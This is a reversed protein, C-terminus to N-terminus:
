QESITVIASRQDIAGASDTVTVVVVYTGAAGWSHTQQFYTGLTGVPIGDDTAGDGWDFQVSVPLVAQQNIYVFWATEQGVGAAQNGLPVSILIDREIIEVDSSVQGSSGEDDSVSITVSYTGVVNYHTIVLASNESTPTFYDYGISLGWDFSVSYPPAGGDIQFSWVGHVGTRLSTPANSLTVTLDIPPQQEEIEVEASDQDTLEPAWPVTIGGANIVIAEVTATNILDKTIETEYIFVLSQGPALPQTGSVLTLNQETIGLDTDTIRIQDLFYTQNPNTVVFCYTVKTGSPGSVKESGPCSVGHDWGLYVTKHLEIESWPNPFGIKEFARRQKGTGDEVRGEINVTGGRPITDPDIFRRDRTVLAADPDDPAEWIVPLAQGVYSCLAVAVGNVSLTPTGAAHRPDWFDDTVPLMWLYGKADGNVWNGELLILKQVTGRPALGNIPCPAETVVDGAQIGRGKPDTGANFGIIYPFENTQSLLNIPATFPLLPNPNGNPLVPSRVHPQVSLWGRNAFATLVANYAHLIENNYICGGAPYGSGQNFQAITRGDPMYIQSSVAAAATPIPIATYLTGRGHLPTATIYELSYDADILDGDADAVVVYVCTMGWPFQLPNYLPSTNPPRDPNGIIALRRLETSAGVEPLIPPATYVGLNPIGAVPTVYPNVPPFPHALVGFPNLNPPFLISVAPGVGIVKKEPANPSGDLRGFDIVKDDAVVDIYPRANPVVEIIWQAQSFLGYQDYVTLSITYLGARLPQFQASVTTGSAATGPAFGASSISKPITWFYTLASGEPDSVTAILTLGQHAIQDANVPGIRLFPGRPPSVPIPGVPIGAPATANVIITPKLNSTGVVTRGPFVISADTFADTSSAGNDTITITQDITGDDAGSELFPVTFLFSNAVGPLPKPYSVVFHYRGPLLEMIESENRKLRVGGSPLPRNARITTPDSSEQPPVPGAVYMVGIPYDTPDLQQANMLRVTSHGATLVVFLSLHSINTKIYDGDIEGGLNDWTKSEANWVGIYINERDEGPSIPLTLLAPKSFELSSPEILFVKGVPVRGFPSDIPVVDIYSLSVKVEETIAGKPIELSIGDLEDVESEVNLLVGRDPLVDVSKLAVVIDSRSGSEVQLGFLAEEVGLRGDGSADAGEEIGQVPLGTVVKLARIVDTVDVDGDSDSDGPMGAYVLTFCAMLLISICGLLFLSKKM